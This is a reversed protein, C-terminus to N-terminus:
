GAADDEELSRRPDPAAHLAIQDPQSRPVGARHLRAALRHWPRPGLRRRRGHATRVRCCPVRLRGQGAGRAQPPLLRGQLFRATARRRALDFRGYLVLGVAPCAVPVPYPGRRHRRRHSPGAHRATGGSASGDACSPFHCRWRRRGASPEGPDAAVTRRGRSFTIDRCFCATSPVTSPGSTCGAM